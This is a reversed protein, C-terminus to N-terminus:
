SADRFIFYYAGENVDVTLNGGRTEAYVVWGPKEESCCEVQPSFAGTRSDYWGLLMPDTMRKRAEELATERAQSLGAGEEGRVAVPNPLMDRTLEACSVMSM